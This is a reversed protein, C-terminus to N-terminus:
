VTTDELVAKRAAVKAPTWVAQAILDVEVGAKGGVKEAVSAMDDRGPDLVRRHFNSAIEKGDELVVEKERVQIQGDALVEVKDVITEKTLAM